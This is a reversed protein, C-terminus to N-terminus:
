RRRSPTAKRLLVSQRIAFGGKVTLVLTTALRHRRAHALRSRGAATLRMSVQASRGRAISYAGQALLITRRRVVTRHNKRTRVVVQRVLKATGLCRAPGRCTLRLKAVGASVTAVSAAVARQPTPPPGKVAVIQKPAAAPVALSASSATAHGVANTATVRCVLGHGQDAAQAVYSSGTANAIATGDRTWQYTFKLTARGTWSGTSCSLAQGGVTPTGSISPPSTNVPAARTLSVNFGGTTSPQTVGVLGSKLALYETSGEAFFELTYSGTALGPITYQGNADTEAAGGFFEPGRSSTAVVFVNAVPQHTSADTVAGSIQAGVHLNADIGPVATEGSVPVPTAQAFSEKAEWFQPVLNQGQGPEFEVAYEGPPVGAVSYSGDAKSTAFGIFSPEGLGIPFVIVEAGALAAGEAKVTGSVTAGKVLQADIGTTTAGDSVTVPTAAAFTSVKEFFQGVFESGFAPTFDVKYTGAPLGEVHYEGASDTQASEIFEESSANLVEVEVGELPANAGAAETVIGQITGAAQAAAIPVIAMLVISGLAAGLLVRVSKGVTRM